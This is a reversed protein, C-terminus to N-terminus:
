LIQPLKVLDLLRTYELYYETADKELLGLEITVQLPSLGQSFLRYAMANVSYNSPEEKKQNTNNNKSDERKSASSLRLNQRHEKVIANVYNREKNVSANNQVLRIRYEKTVPTIDHSSKGIIRSM